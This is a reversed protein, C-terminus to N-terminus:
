IIGSNFFNALPPWPMEQSNSCADRIHQRLISAAEVLIRNESTAAEFAAEVAEGTDLASSHVLESKNGPYTLDRKYFRKPSM